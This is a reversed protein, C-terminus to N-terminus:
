NQHLYPGVPLILIPLVQPHIGIPASIRNDPISNMLHDNFGSAWQALETPSISRSTFVKFHPYM